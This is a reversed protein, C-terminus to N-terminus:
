VGMMYYIISRFVFALGATIPLTFLWSFIIKLIIKANVGGLSRSRAIGAGIIASVSAHTTSVPMGYGILMYPITTFLWITLANAYEAAVGTILDLRTIKYAVTSIVRKGLTFGGLAIGVSGLIALLIKTYLGPVGLYISTVVYYVGTANGVDNAGFSYASFALSVILLYRLLKNMNLRRYEISRIIKVLAFYLMISLIISFIPSTIWSIIINLIVSWKIQDITIWGFIVYSLGVGFVSGTISQSTSVPLGKYSAYTVWLGASVVAIMASYIDSVQVVGKGLTKMVMWGQTIAGLFAFISFLVLAKNISLAGSGVATDTPNAADNAGINWAMYLSAIYGIVLVLICIDM